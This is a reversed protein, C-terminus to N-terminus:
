KVLQYIEEYPQTMWLQLNMRWHDNNKFFHEQDTNILISSSYTVRQAGPNFRLPAYYKQIPMIPFLIVCRRFNDKYADIHPVTYKNPEATVVTVKDINLLSPLQELDQTLGPVGTHDFYGFDPGVDFDELEKGKYNGTFRIDEYDFKGTNHMDILHQIVSESLKYGLNKWPKVPTKNILKSQWSSM